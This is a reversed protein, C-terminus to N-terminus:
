GAGITTLLYNITYISNYEVPSKNGGTPALIKINYLSTSYIILFFYYKKHM